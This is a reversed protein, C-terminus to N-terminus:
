TGCTLRGGATEWLRFALQAIQQTAENSPATAVTLRIIRNADRRTKRRTALERKSRM